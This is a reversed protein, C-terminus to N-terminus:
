SGNSARGERSATSTAAPETERGGDGALLEDFLARFHQMAVREEETSAEGHGMAYVIRHAARYNEVVVPHDVSVDAARQDFDDMPYGRDSMVQSVLGDAHSVADIPSDVFEAQVDQWAIAYRRRADPPLARINLNDHREERAALEKEADRRGGSARATRAYEPGFREQLKQTRRRGFAMQAIVVLCLVVAVAIVVWIWTAM